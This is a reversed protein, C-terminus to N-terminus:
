ASKRGLMLIHGSTAVVAPHTALALHAELWHAYSQPQEDALRNVAEWDHSGIGELGVRQEVALGASSLLTELEEALFFHCYHRGVFHEDEGDRWLGRWSETSAIEQPWHAAAEIVVALRGMVSIAVLGGPRAVRLLEGVATAREAAGRVHSLPGGLCLVVDFHGDPYASLDTISGQQCDIQASVGARHAERRAVDLLAPTLDFLAVQLGRQALAIAYRGPGGGADLARGATPLLPGLFHLTTDYELRHFPDQQLRGWEREPDSAYLTVIDPM